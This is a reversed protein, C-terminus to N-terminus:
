DLLDSIATKKFADILSLQNALSRNPFLNDAKMRERFGYAPLKANIYAQLLVQFQSMRSTYGAQRMRHFVKESNHIDGRKAYQELIAMYTTFMPTMKSQQTAKHLVSDAKGVEGSQVYLKVLADWTLPGIPYGSDAMQKILDKGKVLMKNNEYVKLLVYYNKASLKWKKSMMEFIAEAEEIKKLKGYAEVAAMCDEIRPKSECVKWIGEVEDAKGLNAYTRLLTPCVWRKEKLNEGEMEKLVAEAKEKHGASTYHRVLIAQTQIDPEVGEAKMTEVIQDMGAIDNSRGKVDILIKYTFPSPKVNEKEMLLLVDAIKKKDTRKYMLLLQNCAFATLPLDLDKMKNFIGEAKILNNQSVCNALLTRYVLEGRFSKPITELYKEAKQLGRLKAIFDLQSAYDKEMFELKKNAAIWEMLQLARGYMKRRRLYSLALLIELKSLEKGEEVWKDLASHVSLGPAKMIAKFLQSEDKRGQSKKQTLDTETDSLELEDYPKEIDEEGDSIEAELENNNEHTELESLESELSDDDKSSSTDAQSSLERRSVTLKLSAHGANHFTKMSHFRSFTLRHSDHVSAEDEMCATAMTKVFSARSAGVSFGQGRLRLSARRLTWM